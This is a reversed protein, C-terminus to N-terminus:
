LKAQSSNDVKTHTGLAAKRIRKGGKGDKVWIEAQTVSISRGVSAVTIIIDMYSEIPLPSLYVISLSQSVGLMSWPDPIEGTTHCYICASTICDVITAVCGGHVNGLGNAMKDTAQMECVLESYKGDESRSLDLLELSASDLAAASFSTDRDGNSLNHMFDKISERAAELSMAKLVM